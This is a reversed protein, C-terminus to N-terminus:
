SSISCVSNAFANPDGVIPMKYFRAFTLSRQSWGAAKRIVEINIGGESAKSTSAHRTSYATFKATDIGSSSLIQRIWRSISTTSAAHFPKKTTIILKKCDQRLKATYNLYCLLTTAPCISCNEKFFPLILNPQPRGPASTKILETIKITVNNDNITINDICILSLTQIRHATVLAMLTVLKKTILELGLSENPYLSSLYDLVISPDWVVEYKPKKPRLKFIGKFFRTMREDTGLQPGLILSIASRMTNLTSYSLGEHFKSTLFAIVTQVSYSLPDVGQSKCFLIWQKLASEYQKTTKLSLSALMIDISSAPMGRNLFARRIIQRSGIEPEQTLPASM